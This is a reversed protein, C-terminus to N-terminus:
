IVKIIKIVEISEPQIDETTTLGNGTNGTGSNNTYLAQGGGALGLARSGSGTDISYALLTGTATGNSSFSTWDATSIVGTTSFWQHNHSPGSHLHQLDVQNSANGVSTIATTGDQTTTAAGVSYKGTFNPLNKGDIASTSVSDATYAGAGHIADYNTENVVDGNAQMWGRPISITGNFTHMEKIEGVFSLQSADAVTDVTKDGCKLGYTQGSDYELIKGNACAAFEGQAAGDNSLLNGKANVVSTPPSGTPLPTFASYATLTFLLLLIRM